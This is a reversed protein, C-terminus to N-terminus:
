EEREFPLGLLELLRKGKEPNGATTVITVEIGRPGQTKTVDLEPFITYESLGLSYNGSKDIGALPVGRFDRLRPLVISILRDLFDYMKRGRLTVSIGVSMGIRLNFAAISVKARTIKPIQGTIAAIDKILNEKLEKNGSIEGVGMNVVVKTIKPIAMKNKIDFEKSLALAVEKEYKEQLRGKDKM